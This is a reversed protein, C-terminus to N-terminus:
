YRSDLIARNGRIATFYRALSERGPQATRQHYVRRLRIDAADLLASAEADTAGGGRKMFWAALNIEAVALDVASEGRQPQRDYRRRHIGLGTRLHEYARGPSFPELAAGLAGHATALETRLDFEDAEAQDALTQRIALATRADKLASDIAGTFQHVKFRELLAHGLQRQLTDDTGHRALLQEAREIALTAANRAANLDGAQRLVTAWRTTQAVYDRQYDRNLANTQHLYEGADLASRAHAIAAAYDGRRAQVTSLRALTGMRAHQLRVDFPREALLEDRLVLSRSLADVARVDHGTRNAIEGDWELADAYLARRAGCQALVALAEDLFGRAPALDGAASRTRALDILVHALEDTAGPARIAAAARAATLARQLTAGGDDAALGAKRLLRARLVVGRDDPFRRAVQEAARLYHKAAEPAHGRVHALEGLNEQLATSIEILAPDTGVLADLDRLRQVVGDLLRGRTGESGALSAIEGTLENVVMGMTEQTLGAMKRAADRDRRAQMWLSTSLVTAGALLILGAVGALLHRRYQRMVRRALYWRQDLRAQVVDGDLFRALDDALADASQYRQDKDKAIARAVIAQLDADLETPAPHGTWEGRGASEVLSRPPTGLIRARVADKDGQVDYPFSGTLLKFLVIGLAYVDSRVDVAEFGTLQEPSSYPLTGVVQGILSIGDGSDGTSDSSLAKALGFDLVQPEGDIDVLINAPKLDRHIVGRQHARSIARAVKVFLAVRERLGLGNALAYADVAVGDVFQMVYYHHGHFSGSEIVQVINPLQLRSAIQIERAFRRLQRPTALNGGWLMKIAVDRQTSRQVARAVLGQGGPPLMEVVDYAPLAEDLTQLMAAQHPLAQPNDDADSEVQRAVAILTRLERVRPALEPMLAAYDRELEAPTVPVGARLRQALEDLAHDLADEDSAPVRAPDLLTM